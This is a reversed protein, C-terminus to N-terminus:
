KKRFACYFVVYGVNQSSQPQAIAGLSGEEGRGQQWVIGLRLSTSAVTRIGLALLLSSRVWFSSTSAIEL